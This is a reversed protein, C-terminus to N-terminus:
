DLSFELDGSKILLSGGADLAETENLAGSGICNGGAPGASDWMSWHTANEKAALNTWEPATNSKRVGGSAAALTVQKRATETCPNATGEEGPDGTHLKVYPSNPIAALLLNEGYNSLSM